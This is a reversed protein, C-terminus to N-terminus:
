RPSWSELASRNPSTIMAGVSLGVITDLETDRATLMVVYADSFTRMQRCVELGDVM